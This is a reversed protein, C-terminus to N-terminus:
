GLALILRRAYGKSLAHVRKHLVPGLGLHEIADALQAASRRYAGAFFALVRAVFQDPYPRLGDPLYFITDRRDLLSLARGQLMVDGGDVPLLGAIAELLTTKGAGNPGVIGLVEGARVAFAIDRLAIQEGYRKRLAVIELFKTDRSAGDMRLRRSLDLM